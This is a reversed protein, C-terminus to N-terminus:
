THPYKDANCYGVTEVSERGGRCTKHRRTLIGLCPELAVRRPTHHSLERTTKVDYLWVGITTALALLGGDPSFAIVRDGQSIGGKGFRAIAGDPLNWMQYDHFNQAISAGSFTCLCLCIWAFLAFHLMQIRMPKNGKRGISRTDHSIVAEIIENRIRRSQAIM